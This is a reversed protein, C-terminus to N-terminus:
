IYAAKHLKNSLYNLYNSLYIVYIVSQVGFSQSRWLISKELEDESGICLVGGDDDHVTTLLYKKIPILPTFYVM